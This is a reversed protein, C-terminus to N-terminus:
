MCYINLLHISIQSFMQFLSKNGWIATAVPVDTLETERCHSTWVPLSKISLGAERPLILKEKRTFLLKGEETGSCVRSVKISRQEKFSLLTQFILVARLAAVRSGQFTLMKRCQWVPWFCGAAPKKNTSFDTM